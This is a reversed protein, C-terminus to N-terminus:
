VVLWLTYVSPGHSWGCIYCLIAKDLMLPLFTGQDLSPKISGYLPIGPCPSLLIHIPPHVGECFCSSAPYSLPNRPPFLFLPCKFHLYIFYWIKFYALTLYRFCPLSVQLYHLNVLDSQSSFHLFSQVLYAIQTWKLNCIWLLSILWFYLMNTIDM